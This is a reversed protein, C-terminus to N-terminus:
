EDNLIAKLISGAIMINRETRERSRREAEEKAKRDAEEKIRKAEEEAKRKEEARKQREEEEFADTFHEMITDVTGNSVCLQGALYHLNTVSTNTFKRKDVSRNMEEVFGECKQYYEIGYKKEIINKYKSLSDGNVCVEKICNSIYEDEASQCGGMLSADGTPIAVFGMTPTGGDLKQFLGDIDQQTLYCEKGIMRVMREGLKSKTQKWEQVAEFFDALDKELTNCNVGETEGLRRLWRKQGDFPRGKVGVEEVLELIFQHYDETIGGQPMSDSSLLSEDEM